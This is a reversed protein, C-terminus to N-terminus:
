EEKNEFSINAVTLLPICTFMSYIYRYECWVPSAITTLWLAFIPIYVLLYKYKKKYVTYIACILVIWFTFGISFAMSILPVKRQNIINNMKDMLNIEVLPNKEYPIM